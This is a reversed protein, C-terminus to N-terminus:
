QKSSEKGNNFADEQALKFLEWFLECDEHTLTRGAMMLDNLGKLYPKNSLFAMVEELTEMKTGNYFKEFVMDGVYLEKSTM